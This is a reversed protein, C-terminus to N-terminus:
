LVEATRGVQIMDVLDKTEPKQNLKGRIELWKEEGIEEKIVEVSLVIDELASNNMELDGRVQMHKKEIRGHKILSYGAFIVLGAGGAICVTIFQEVYWAGFMGICAILGGYILFEDWISPIAPFKFKLAFLLLGIVLGGTGVLVMIRFGNFLNSLLQQRRQDAAEYVKLNVTRVKVQKYKKGDKVYLNRTTLFAPEVRGEIPVAVIVEEYKDSWYWRAVKEYYTESTYDKKRSRSCGGCVVVCLLLTLNLMRM